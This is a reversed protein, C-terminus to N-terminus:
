FLTARLTQQIRLKLGDILPMKVAIPEPLNAYKVLFKRAETENAQIFDVGKDIAAKVRKAV